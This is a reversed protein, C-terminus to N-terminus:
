ASARRSEWGVPDGSYESPSVGFARRFAASFASTSAYGSRHAVAGIPLGGDLLGVANAMRALTRWQSFSMGVERAFVRSVTRVSLSLSWAWAEISRDDAPDALVATVLPRVRDDSPLPVEPVALGGGREAGAEEAALLEAVLRQARLRMERPMPQEGLHRLLERAAAPVTVVQPATWGAPAVGAAFYTCCAMAGPAVTAAHPAGAPIWLGQGPSLRWIADGAAGATSGAVPWLLMGEEHFHEGLPGPGGDARGLLTATTLLYGSPIQAPIRQAAAWNPYM